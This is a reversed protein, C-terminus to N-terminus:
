PGEAWASPGRSCYADSLVWPSAAAPGCGAVMGAAAGIVAGAAAGDDAAGGGTSGVPSAASVGRCTIWSWGPAAGGCGPAGGGLADYAARGDAVSAGAAPPAPSRKMVPGTTLAVPSM